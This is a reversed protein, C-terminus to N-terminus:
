DDALGGYTVNVTADHAIQLEGVSTFVPTTIEVRLAGASMVRWILESPNIDRGLKSKQWLRYADVAASVADQISVAEAARARDVYYTLTIDYSVTEPAQVTVLDTLPRVTRDNLVAAVDDLVDQSPLEGGHLLPVVVVERPEPSTVAVDVISPSATMAWYRYAGEPGAVSFSEPATRIRERFAADTEAEAGGSGETLNVVSQVFPLPDILTNIQGPLFGNGSVGPVSCSATVTGSIGGAPIEIVQSTEFYITGGSGQPGVRTGAPIITASTLPISLNFQLTTIASEAPLRTVDYLAGIHDLVPGSAYKLLDVKKNHNLLAQQQIIIQALAMLFLRRPDGPYLPSGNLGEFITIISNQIADADVDVFDIDTLTDFSSM